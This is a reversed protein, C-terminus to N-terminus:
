QTELITFPGIKQQVSREALPNVQYTFTQYLFYDEGPILEIPVRVHNEFTYCGPENDPPNLNATLLVTGNVWSRRRDAAADTFKCFSVDFVVEGGPIAIAKLIKVEGFEVPPNDEFHRLYTAGVVILLLIVTIIALFIQVYDWCGDSTRFIKRSKPDPPYSQGYTKLSDLETMTIEANHRPASQIGM